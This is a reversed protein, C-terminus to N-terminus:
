VVQGDRVVQSTSHGGSCGVRRHEPTWTTNYSSGGADSCREFSEGNKRLTFEATDKEADSPDYLAFLTGACVPCQATRDEQIRLANETRM